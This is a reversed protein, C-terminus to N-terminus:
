FGPHYGGDITIIQGNIYSALDSALFAVLNAVEDSTGFRKLAVIQKYQDEPIEEIMETKIFGPSITNIRINKVGLEIALAKTAGFLGSKAAAYNVQGKWGTVGSQSSVNIISGRKKMLMPKLVQKTVYFFSNLNVNIVEEWEEDKMFVMLNDRRVGANNVLVEIFKDPNDKIWTGLQQKVQQADGINFQLLEAQVGLAQVEALTESAKQANSHYNILLNFGQAALKLCIAKGIGRSGGTVLAFNSM